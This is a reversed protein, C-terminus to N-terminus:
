RNYHIANWTHKYIFKLNWIVNEFPSKANNVLYTRVHTPMLHWRMAIESFIIFNRIKNYVINAYNIPNWSSELPFCENVYVFKHSHKVCRQWAHLYYLSDIKITSLTWVLISWTSIYFIGFDFITKKENQSAACM